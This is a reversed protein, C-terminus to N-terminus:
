YLFYLKGDKVYIIRENGDCDNIFYDTARDPIDVVALNAYCGNCDVGSEILEILKKNTRSESYKSFGYQSVIEDKISFGGFCTNIVIKM